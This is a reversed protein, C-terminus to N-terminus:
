AHAQLLNLTKKLKCHVCLLVQHMTHVFKRLGQLPLAEVTESRGRPSDSTSLCQLFIPLWEPLSSGLVLVELLCM